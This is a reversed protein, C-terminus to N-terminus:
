CVLLILTNHSMRKEHRPDVYLRVYLRGTIEKRTNVQTNVSMKRDMHVITAGHWLFDPFRIAFTCAVVSM